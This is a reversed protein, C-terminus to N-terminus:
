QAGENSRPTPRWNSRAGAENLAEEKKGLAADILGLDSVLHM